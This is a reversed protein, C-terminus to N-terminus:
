SALELSSERPHYLMPKRGEREVEVLYHYTDKQMGESSYFKVRYKEQVITVGYDYYPWREVMTRAQERTYGRIERLINVYFKKPLNNFLRYSEDPKLVAVIKGTKQTEIGGAHSSWTVTDGLNFRKPTQIVAGDTNTTQLEM